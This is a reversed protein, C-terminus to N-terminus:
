FRFYIFPNYTALALVMSSALLIALLLITSVIQFSAELWPRLHISAAAAFKQYSSKAWPALPTAALIGASKTDLYLLPFFEQGHGRGFGFMARWYATAYALNVARFLVWGCSIILLSYGNQLPLWLRKLYKKLAFRELMIFSGHYLGWVVFTWAAGHWLGCLLM